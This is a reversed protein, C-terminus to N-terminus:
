CAQVEEPDMTRISPKDHLEHAYVDMSGAVQELSHFYFTEWGRLTIGEVSEKNRLAATFKVLEKDAVLECCGIMGTEPHVIACNAFTGCALDDIVMLRINVTSTKKGTIDSFSINTINQIITKM